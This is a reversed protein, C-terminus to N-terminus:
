LKVQETDGTQKSGLMMMKQAVQRCPDGCYKTKGPVEIKRSCYECFREKPKFSCLRVQLERLCYRRAESISSNAAQTIREGTPIHHMDLLVKYFIHERERWEVDSEKVVLEDQFKTKKLRYESM